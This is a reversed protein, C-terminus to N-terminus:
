NWFAWPMGAAECSARVDGIYRARDPAAAAVYREDTRLAGFEGLLVRDRAIGHRDAWAIVRAFHRDIYRRDPRADFYQALVREITAAIERKQTTPTGTDATMRAAVAALTQQMSGAASPWPVANLYRYMPESTMWPAGQHSFVYPEYFHFTYIINPDDIPELAELGAIMSGCAGAALLTLHPAAARATRLLESQIVTWDASACSQPPENLPELAVRAPDLRALRLAVERVLSIYYTLLPARTDGVLNDANWHHTATNPHLNVIVSLDQALALEVAKVVDGILAARREGSFALLPGPDVPLRLFDIGARRLAALDGHTPVPRAPEYPPWDYDTRPPPFERTLSFWPWLNMGRRLRITARAARATAALGLAAGAIVAAIDRRTLGRPAM